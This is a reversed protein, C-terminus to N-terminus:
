YVLPLKAEELIQSCRTRVYEDEPASRLVDQITQTMAPTIATDRGPPALIDIAQYRIGPNDDHQLVFKITELAAPDASFRRLGNIAELRVAANPDNRVADFLVQRLDDTRQTGSEQNLLQVAYFRV